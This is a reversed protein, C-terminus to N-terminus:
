MPSRAVADVHVIERRGAREFTLTLPVIDGPPIPTKLATLMLHYGGPKLQVVSNAPLEIAAVGRMRMVTGDMHMVHMEARAALPSHVAILRARETSAIQMFAGAVRQGPMTARVWAHLVRVDAVAAQAFVLTLACLLGCVGARGARRCFRRHSRARLEPVTM